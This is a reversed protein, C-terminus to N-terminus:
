PRLIIKGRATMANFGAHARAAEALPIVEAVRVEFLGNQADAYVAHARSILDQHTETHDGLSTWSVKISGRNGTGYFGSLISVDIPPIPGAALGYVVNSGRARLMKLGMDFYPGGLSDYVAHVGGGSLGRVTDALGPETVLVAHDAGRELIGKLKGADSTGGIVQAGMAKAYQALITGVGGSAAHVFVWQGPAIPHADHSLYHATMGQLTVATATEFDTGLPLPIVRDAAISVFQGYAGPMPGGYAVRDGVAFGAVGEGLAAILGAAEIGPVFPVTMPYPKGSRHQLDVFNVGIAKQEILVQGPGAVPIQAEVPTLVEPGGFAQVQMTLMTM